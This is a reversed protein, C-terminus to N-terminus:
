LHHYKENRLITFSRYIQESLILRVIMHPFVLKSLSWTANARSLIRADVGYAGGILFILQKVAKTQCKEIQKAIDQNNWNMGREDLLILYDDQQLRQLVKESEEKKILAPLTAKTTPLLVWNAECYHNIRKTFMEIGESVYGEHNKGVSWLQIKM